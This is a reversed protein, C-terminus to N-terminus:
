AIGADEEGEDRKVVHGEVRAGACRKVAHRAEEIRKVAVCGTGVLLTGLEAGHQVHDGVAACGRAQEDEEGLSKRAPANDELAQDREIQGAVVHVHVCGQAHTAACLAVFIYGRAAAPNQPLVVGVLYAVM